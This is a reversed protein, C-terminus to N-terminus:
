GARSGGGGGARWGGGPSFCQRWVIRAGAWFLACGACVGDPGGAVGFRARCRAGRGGVPVLPYGMGPFAPMKGSWLLRETGTSIGSFAVDVVVDADGPADLLLQTVDLMEPAQLVVATAHM